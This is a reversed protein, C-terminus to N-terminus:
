DNFTELLMEFYLYVGFELVSFKQEDLASSEGHYLCSLLVSSVEKPKFLQGNVIEARVDAVIKGLSKRKKANDGLSERIIEVPCSSIYKWNWEKVMKEVLVYVQTYPSSLNQYGFSSVFENLKGHVGDVCLSRIQDYIDTDSIELGTEDWNSYIKSFM